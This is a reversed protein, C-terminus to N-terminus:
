LLISLRRYLHKFILSKEITEDSFCLTKGGGLLVFMRVIITLLILMVVTELLGFLGGYLREKKETLNFFLKNQAVTNIFATLIMLLSLVILFIFIRMVEITAEEAFLSEITEATERPSKSKDYITDVIVRMISDDENLQQEFSARVYNPLRNEMETGYSDRMAERVNSRFWEESGVSGNNRDCAYEYLAHDFTMEGKSNLVQSIDEATCFFGYNGKNIAESFAEPFNVNENVKEVASINTDKAVTEYVPHAGFAAVVSSLLTAILYGISLVLVKTIGRKYNSRIVMGAVLLVLVDFLWWFHAGM